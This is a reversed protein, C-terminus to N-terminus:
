RETEPLPAGDPAADPYGRPQPLMKPEAGLALARDRYESALELLQRALARDTCQVALRHCREVNQILKEITADM